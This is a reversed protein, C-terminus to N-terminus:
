LRRIRQTQKRDIVITHVGYVDGGDGTTVVGGHALEASTSSWQSLDTTAQDEPRRPTCSDQDYTSYSIPSTAKLVRDKEDLAGGGTLDSVEEAKSRCLHVVVVSGEVEVVHVAFDDAAPGSSAQDVVREADASTQSTRQQDANHNYVLCTTNRSTGTRM